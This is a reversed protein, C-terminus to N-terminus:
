VPLIVIAELEYETTPVSSPQLRYWLTAVMAALAIPALLM